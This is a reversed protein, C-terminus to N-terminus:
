FPPGAETFNAGSFYKGTTPNYSNKADDEIHSGEHAVTQGLSSGSLSESFEADVTLKHDATVGPTVMADTKFGPATHADADMRQQTVFKVGIGNSDLRLREGNKGYAEACYNGPRLPVLASGYKDTIAFSEAGRAGLFRVVVGGVFSGPDSLKATAKATELYAATWFALAVFFMLWRNLYWMCTQPRRTPFM